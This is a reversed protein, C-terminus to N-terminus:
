VLSFSVAMTSKTSVSLYINSRNLSHRIYTVNFLSLCSVIDAEVDAPASATLSMFPVKTLARLGGIRRFALRFDSGRNSQKIFHTAVANHIFCVM